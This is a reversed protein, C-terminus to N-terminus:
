RGRAWARGVVRGVSRASTTSRQCDRGGSIRASTRPSIRDPKGVCDRPSEISQPITGSCPELPTYPDSFALGLDIRCPAVFGGMNLTERALSIPPCPRWSRKPLRM